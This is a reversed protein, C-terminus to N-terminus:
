GAPDPLTFYFTAGHGPESEAWVRGGHRLIVRKVTALGIGTGEFETEKHLRQFAVFLRSSWQMDFGAGNDRLYFVTEGDRQEAAFAIHPQAVERSFKIANGLLNELLVNVLRADGNAHLDPMIAVSVPKVANALLRTAIDGIMASLDLGTRSLNQQTARSLALLDDILQNMRFGNALIRQLMQLELPDLRAAIDEELSQAFGVIARLPARLDHSVSYSFSELERNVQELEATRQAVRQELAENTERVRAEAQSLDAVQQQLRSTVRQYDQRLTELELQQRKVRDDVTVLRQHEGVAQDICELLPLALTALTDQQAAPVSMQWLLPALQRTSWHAGPVCVIGQMRAQWAPVVEALPATDDLYVVVPRAQLNRKSPRFHEFGAPVPQITSLFRSM